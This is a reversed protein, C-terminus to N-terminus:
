WECDDGSDDGDIDRWGESSGSLVGDSEAAAYGPLGMVQARYMDCVYHAVLSGEEAAIVQEMRALCQLIAGSTPPEDYTWLWQGLSKRPSGGGFHGADGSDPFARAYAKQYARGFGSYPGPYWGSAGKPACCLLSGSPLGERIVYEELLRVPAVGLAPVNNPIYFRKPKRADANKDFVLSGRIYPSLEEDNHVVLVHPDTPSPPQRWRICVVRGEWYLDYYVRLCRVAGPRLCGFTQLMMNLQQHRGSRQGLSFGFHFIRYWQAPTWARKAKSPRKYYKDLVTLLTRVSPHKTPVRLYLPTGDEELLPAEALTECMELHWATVGGLYSRVTSSDLRFPRVEVAYAIYGLVDRVTAPLDHGAFQVLFDRFDRVGRRQIASTSERIRMAMMSSVLSTLAGASPGSWGAAAAWCEGCLVLATLGPKVGSCARTPGRFTREAGFGYTGDLRAFHEWAPTTFLETRPPYYRLVRGGKVLHWWDYTDWVPLVFTGATDGPSGRQCQLFHLLYARILDFDPNAYVHEGALERAFFSDVESCYRPLHANTGVPDAGGDLTFPRPLVSQVSLFEDRRYQWDSYDRRRVYRSLGDSLGNEVGPIHECALDLDYLRAAAFIREGVEWLAPAMTGQKNVLSVTTSNDSRFLLREGRHDPGLLEAASAATSAERFNSSKHPACQDPPFSLIHRWDRLAIGGQWGSADMTPASIGEPTQWHETLYERTGSHQGLWLGSVEPKGEYFYYRRSPKGNMHDVFRALEGRAGDSLHVMATDAWQLKAPTLAVLPNVFADRDAYVPALMNQGGVILPAVFQLKGVVSALERRPIQSGPPYKRLLERVAASYKEARSRSLTVTQSDSHIERGVYEKALAPLFTKRESAQVGLLALQDIEAFARRDSEAKGLDASDYISHGDDVFIGTCASRGDTHVTGNLVRKFVQAMDAQHKPADFFGFM